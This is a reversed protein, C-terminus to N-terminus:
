DDDRSWQTRPRDMHEGNVELDVRENFFCLHDAAPKADHQPRSLDM